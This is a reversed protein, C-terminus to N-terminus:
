PVSPRLGANLVVIRGEIRPRVPTRRKLWATVVDRLGDGYRVNKGKRFMTYEDGGAALFDNTVVRYTKESDLPRGDIEVSVVRRGVPRGADVTVRLGSVQLAGHLGRASEELTQLLQRGTLDLSVLVNDFPLLSYLQELTISGRPIDTRIGGSNTLAADAGAAERMADAILDGLNSEGRSNRTLDVGTVGAVAAFRDRIRDDYSAVIEAISPDFPDRPGSYVVKLENKETFGEIRGNEPDVELELVGLYQDYCGAQVIVTRGVVVPDVVATHSHGGVIVAIGEVEGALKRDAELGCHSLVVVLHAGQARVDSIIGPLVDRPERFTLGKVNAPKTTWATEPTTIGIVAIRVGKRDLLLYPKVGPLGMGREDVINASLWPFRAVTRLAQLAKMGWDFEHNGIAMADFALANMIEAVPEGLFVNSIATGQFMDGGSLLLTGAPNKAREDEIRQALWAAGGVPREPDVSKVIGPLIHGHTDNVHLITLAVPPRADALPLVAFLFLVSLVLVRLLGM